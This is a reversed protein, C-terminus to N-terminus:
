LVSAEGEALAIEAVHLGDEYQKSPYRTWNDTEHGIIVRNLDGGAVCLIKEYSKTIHYPSGVM